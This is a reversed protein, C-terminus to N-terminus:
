RSRATGGSLLLAKVLSDVSAPTQPRNGAAILANVLADRNGTIATALSANGAERRGQVLAETVKDVGKMAVSRALGLPGGAAFAEKAGFAPGSGGGLRHMAAVRGATASNGTAFQRTGAFTNENDLVNILQNARDEGFLSTLKQRNWDGEGKVLRNIAAIDNTNNGVIRDIDARAGQSLRLPVASPGVQTGQPQAGDQLMQSVDEPRPATRGSDLLSQGQGLADRQRALEAFQADVDKIGPASAALAQDVQQRAITLQRIVQPNAENAMLGDIAQRTALLAQPHPDLVDTGPINLYGRVRQIAQQEPGRVNAVAADLNDALPQTNVARADRMVPAYQQGVSAQNDAIGQEIQSPVVRPGLTQDIATGLRGNAGANRADLASRVVQNGEGPMNALAAAQGQLNPGLDAFMADPGLETLRQRIAVPSLGDANAAWGLERLAYPTTDAAGAVARQQLAKLIAGVGSGVAKGAAPGLLGAGAGWEVGSKIASPDGDSRVAADTGGIGAGSALSMASRTLLNGGGAGFAAPAAMVAPITGAVGGVVNLGTDVNPHAEHFATDKGQQIDLAQQYRDGFSKGPLKQYSDPLLPDVYPALAANTAADIRNLLGGVIPVGTAVSRAANDASISGDQRQLVVPDNDWPNAPAAAPQAAVIPDNDWPNAM